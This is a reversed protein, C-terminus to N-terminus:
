KEVEVVKNSSKEGKIIKIQREKVGFYEALIKIVAKNAKGEIAPSNVKVKLVKNEDQIVEPKKANAIVKTNIRTIQM